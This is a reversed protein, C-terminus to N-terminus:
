RDLTDHATHMALNRDEALTEFPFVAPVGVETWAAHDSCAYGCATDGFTIEHPGPGNYEGVLKKVFDTLDTSVYDTLFYMDRPAGSFGTMDLQMVAVVNKGALQYERAIARSGRLGVEEAAYAMFQLTRWPRFGSALMVRLVESVVAIGSANDDAGPAVSQDSLNISDLHGGLIVTENPLVSGEISPRQVALVAEVHARRPGADLGGGRSGPVLAAVVLRYAGTTAPAGSEALRVM